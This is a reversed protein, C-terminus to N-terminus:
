TPMSACNVPVHTNRRTKWFRDDWRVGGWLYSRLSLPMSRTCLLVVDYFSPPSTIKQPRRARGKQRENQNMQDYASTVTQITTNQTCLPTTHQKAGRGGGGGRGVGGGTTFVPLAMSMKVKETRHQVKKKEEKKPCNYLMRTADLLPVRRVPKRGGVPINSTCIIHHHKCSAM